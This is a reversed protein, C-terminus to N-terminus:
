STKSKLMQHNIADAIKYGAFASATMFLALELAAETEMGLILKGGIVSIFGAILGGSAAVVNPRNNFLAQGYALPDTAM